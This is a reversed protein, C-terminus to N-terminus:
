DIQLLIGSDTAPHKFRYCSAQIQLLIGSVPASDEVNEKGVLNKMKMKSKKDNETRKSKNMM